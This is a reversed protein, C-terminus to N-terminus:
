TRRAMMRSRAFPPQDRGFCAPIDELAVELQQVSVAAQGGPGTNISRKSSSPAVRLVDESWLNRITEASGWRTSVMIRGAAAAGVATRKAPLGTNARCGSHVPTVVGPRRGHSHDTRERETSSSTEGRADLFVADGVTAGSAAGLWLGDATTRTARGVIAAVGSEAFGKLDDDIRYM